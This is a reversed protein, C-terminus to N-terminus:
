HSLEMGERFVEFQFVISYILLYLQSPSPTTVADLTYDIYCMPKISFKFSMIFAGIVSRTSVGTESVYRCKTM